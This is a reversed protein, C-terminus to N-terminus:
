SDFRHCKRNSRCHDKEDSQLDAGSLGGESNEERARGAPQVGEACLFVVKEVAIGHRHSQSLGCPFTPAVAKPHTLGTRPRAPTSVGALGAKLERRSQTDAGWCIAGCCSCPLLLRRAPHYPTCSFTALDFCSLPFSRCLSPVVSPLFSLPFSLCLM